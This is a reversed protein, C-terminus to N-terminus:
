ANGSRRRSAYPVESSEENECEAAYRSNLVGQLATRVASERAVSRLSVLRCPHVGPGCSSSVSRSCKGKRGTPSEGGAPVCSWATILPFAVPISHLVASRPQM